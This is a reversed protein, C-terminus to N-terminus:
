KGLRDRVRRMLEQGEPGQERAWEEWYTEMRETMEAVQAREPRILTLGHEDRLTDRAKQETAAIETLMKREWEAATEDLIRRLRPSLANYADINVLEYNPGGIHIEDFRAWELFEYWKAGIINFAATAVGEMVRREMAVPVEATTLTM